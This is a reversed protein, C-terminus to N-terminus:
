TLGHCWCQLLIRLVAGPCLVGKRMLVVCTRPTAWKERTRGETVGDAIQWTSPGSKFINLHPVDSFTTDVTEQRAGGVTRNKSKLYVSWKNLHSELEGLLVNLNLKLTYWLSTLCTQLLRSNFKDTWPNHPGWPDEDHTIKYSHYLISSLTCYTPFPVSFSTSQWLELNCPELFLFMYQALLFGLCSTVMRLRFNQSHHVGVTRFLPTSNVWFQSSPLFFDFFHFYNYHPIYHVNINDGIM